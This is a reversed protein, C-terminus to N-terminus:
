PIAVGGKQFPSVDGLIREGTACEPVVRPSVRAVAAGKQYIKEM